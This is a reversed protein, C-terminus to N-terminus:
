KGPFQHYKVQKGPLSFHGIKLFEQGYQLSDMLKM